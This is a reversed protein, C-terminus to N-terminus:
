DAHKFKAGKCRGNRTISNQIAGKTVGLADAADTMCAYIEGTESNVVRRARQHSGRVFVGKRAASSKARMEDTWVRSKNEVATLQGNYKRAYDFTKSIYRKGDRNMRMAYWACAMQKNRHIKFLLWHAIYHERGALYVLNEDDDGGGMSRPIIHHREYYEGTKLHRNKAREIIAAYIKQNDM